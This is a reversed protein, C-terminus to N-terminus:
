KERRADVTYLLKKINSIIDQKAYHTRIYTKGRAGMTKQKQKDQLLKQLKQAFSHTNHYCLGAKSQQVHDQLVKCNGNVLVPTGVAMAELTSISLSENESPMVFAKAQSLLAFKELESVFGTYVVDSRDPLHMHAKGMLVLRLGAGYEAQFRSFDELLGDVNKTADIRGAYAIYAEAEKLGATEEVIKHAQAPDFEKPPQVWHGAVTYPTNVDISFFNLVFDKEAESLFIFGQPLGFLYKFYNCKRLPPEDHATPLFVAQKPAKPIGFTSNYYHYGVFIFLDYQKKNQRIHRLMGPCYPGVEKLWRKGLWLSNNPNNYVRETLRGIKGLRRTHKSPYRYVPLGEVETKGEPYVNEWTDYDVACSTVVEIDFDDKLAAAYERCLTEAGGVIETGYRQIVFCIRM